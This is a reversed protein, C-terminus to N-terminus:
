QINKVIGLRLRTKFMNLYDFMQGLVEVNKLRSPKFDQSPKKVEVFGIPIKYFDNQLLLLWLDPCLESVTVESSISIRQEEGLARIVDRLMCRLYFKVDDECAYEMQGLFNSSQFNWINHIDAISAASGLPM